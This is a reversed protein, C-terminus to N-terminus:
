EHKKRNEGKERRNEEKNKKKWEYEIQPWSQYDQVYSSSAAYLSRLNNSCSVGEARYTLFTFAQISLVALISIIVMVTLLEMLSFGRSESGRKM